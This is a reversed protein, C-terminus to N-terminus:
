SKTLKIVARPRLCLTIPNSQTNIARFKALGSPDMVQKAYYPLGMTNVTEEYDAPAFRTVFLPTVSAVIPVLYACNADIFTATGGGVSDPKTVSGRYEEIDVDAFRFGTSRLDRQLEKSEQYKYAETVKDHSTFADFWEPSCIARWGTIVMGGLEAEALRKAAILRERVKTSSTGLAIDLTQQQVDFETFLNKLTSGDADLLYGRIANVRHYELTVEHMAKLEALRDNVLDQLQQLDTESGFARINQIEDAMVKSDRELHYAKFTRLTRKKSGLPDAATSGRESTQILTLRGSQEEVDLSTTRMGKENFLGLQGIRMPQYPAKNMADTLSHMSFADNNFADLQM